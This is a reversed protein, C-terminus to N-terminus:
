CFLACVRACCACSVFYFDRFICMVLWNAGGVLACMCWIRLVPVIAVQEWWALRMVDNVSASRSWCRLAHAASAVMESQRCMEAIGRRVSAWLLQM